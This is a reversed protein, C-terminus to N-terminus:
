TVLRWEVAATDLGVLIGNGGDFRFKLHTHADRLRSKPVDVVVAEGGLAAVKRYLRVDFYRGGLRVVAPFRGIADGGCVPCDAVGPRPMVGRGHCTDCSSRGCGTCFGNCEGCEEGCVGDAFGTGDCEPCCADDCVLPSQPRLPKWGRLKDHDWPLLAAPPIPGESEARDLWSPRVRVIAKADTAYTWDDVQFPHRMEYRCSKGRACFAALDIRPRPAPLLFTALGAGITKLVDRRNM